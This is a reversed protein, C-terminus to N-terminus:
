DRGRYSERKTKPQKVTGPPRDVSREMGAIRNGEVLIEAPGTLEESAGDFIRGCVLVTASM